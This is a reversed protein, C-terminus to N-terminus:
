HIYVQTGVPAWQYVTEAAGIGLRVCGHSVPTGLHNVGEKYGNPWEPLEHIGHGAGTFQMWYPMYLKYKRSWKRPHKNMTRYLGKPTAMGRKGTSIKYTGVNIGDNFIGLLQKALNIDIYKGEKIYPDENSTQNYTYGSTDITRFAIEVDQTLYTEDQAPFGKKIKFKYFTSDNLKKPQFVITKGNEELSVEGDVFPTPELYQKWNNIKMPKSFQFKIPAFVKIGEALNEPSSSIFTPPPITKIMFNAIEKQFLPRDGALIYGLNTIVQYTTDQEFKHKPTIKFVKRDDVIQLDFPVEPTIEFDVRYGQASKDLRISIPDKLGTLTNPAPGYSELKPLKEIKFIKEFDFSATTATMGGLKIKYDEGPKWSRSPKFVLKEGQWELQGTTKPEISFNSEVKHQIVPHDFNIVLPEDIKLEEKELIPQPSLFYSYLDTKDLVVILSGALIFPILVWFKM